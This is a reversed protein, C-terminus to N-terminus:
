RGRRRLLLLLLLARVPVPVPLLLYLCLCLRRRGQKRFGDGGGVVVLRRAGGAGRRAPPCGRAGRVMRSGCWRWCSRSRGSDVLAFTARQRGTRTRRTRGSDGDCDSSGDHGLLDECLVVFVDEHMLKRSPPDLFPFRVVNAQEERFLYAQEGPDSGVAEGKKRGEEERWVSAHFRAVKSVAAAYRTMRLVRCCGCCVCALQLAYQCWFTNSSTGSMAARTSTILCAWAALRRRAAAVAVASAPPSVSPVVATAAPSSCCAPRFCLLPAPSLRFLPETAFLLLLSRTRPLLLLPDTVVVIDHDTGGIRERVQGLRFRSGRNVIM